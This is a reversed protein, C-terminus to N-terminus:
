LIDIFYYHVQTKVLCKRRAVKEQLSRHLVTESDLFQKQVSTELKEYEKLLREPTLSAGVAADRLYDM